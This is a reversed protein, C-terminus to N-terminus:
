SAGRQRREHKAAAKEWKDWDAASPLFPGYFRLVTREDSGLQEAVLKAPVGAALMRVAYHHRGRRLPLRKELKLGDREVWGRTDKTGEGVTQRHWDSAIRRDWTKPFIRGHISGV